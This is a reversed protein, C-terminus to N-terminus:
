DWSNFQLEGGLAEGGGFPPPMWFFRTPGVFLAFGAFIDLFYAEQAGSAPRPRLPWNRAQGNRTSVVTSSKRFKGIIQEATFKKGRPM